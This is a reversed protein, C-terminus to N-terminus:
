KKEIALYDLANKVRLKKLKYVGISGMSASTTPV